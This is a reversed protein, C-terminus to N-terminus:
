SQTNEFEYNLYFKTDLSERLLLTRQIPVIKTLKDDETESTVHIITMVFNLNCPVNKLLIGNM